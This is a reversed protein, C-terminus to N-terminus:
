EKREVSSRGGLRIRGTLFLQPDRGEVSFHYRRLERLLHDVMHIRENWPPFSNIHLIQGECVRRLNAIISGEAEKGFVVIVDFTSFFQSLSPDLDGGRVFFSAMGKQDVSVIEEAYFRKEVLELIRPYGMIVPKAKPFAKRLTMLTPLALIFDGLAGQHIILISRVEAARRLSADQRKKLSLRSGPAM